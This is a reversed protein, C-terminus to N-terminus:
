HWLNLACSNHSFFLVFIYFQVLFGDCCCTNFFCFCIYVCLISFLFVKFMSKRYGVFLCSIVLLPYEWIIVVNEKFFLIALGKRVTTGGFLVHPNGFIMYIVKKLPNEDNESGNELLKWFNHIKALTSITVLDLDYIFITKNNEASLFYLIM